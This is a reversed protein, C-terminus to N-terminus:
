LAVARERHTLAATIRDDDNDGERGMEDRTIIITIPALIIKVKREKWNSILPFSPVLDCVCVIVRSQKYIHCRIPRSGPRAEVKM